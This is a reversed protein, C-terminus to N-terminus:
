IRMEYEAYNMVAERVEGAVFKRLTRVGLEHYEVRSIDSVTIIGVVGLVNLSSRFREWMIPM